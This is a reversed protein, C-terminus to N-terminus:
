HLKLLTIYLSCMVILDIRYPSKFLISRRILVFNALWAHRIEEPLISPDLDEWVIYILLLRIIIVIVLFAYFSTFDVNLSYYNECKIFYKFNAQYVLLSCSM